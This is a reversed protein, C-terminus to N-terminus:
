LLDILIVIFDVLNMVFNFLFRTVDFFDSSNEETEEFTTTEALPEVEMRRATLNFTTDQKGWVSVYFTMSPEFVDLILTDERLAESSYDYNDFTAPGRNECVFMDADGQDSSLSFQVKVEKPRYYNDHSIIKREANKVHIQFHVFEGERVKDRESKDFFLERFEVTRLTVASYSVKTIENKEALVNFSYMTNPRLGTVHKYMAYERDLALNGSGEIQGFYEMGCVTDIISVSERLITDNELISYVTYKYDDLSSEQERESTVSVAEMKHQQRNQRRNQTFDVRKESFTFNEDKLFIPWSLTVQTPAIKLVSVKGKEPPVIKKRFMSSVLITFNTRTMGYVAIYYKGEGQQIEVVDTGRGNISLYSYVHMSPYVVSDSVFIDPNGNCPDVYIWFPSPDRHIYCYYKYESAEVSDKLTQQINLEKVEPRSVSESFFATEKNAASNSSIGIQVLSFILVYKIWNM